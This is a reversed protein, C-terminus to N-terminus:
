GVHLSLLPHAKLHFCEISPWDRWAIRIIFNGGYLDGRPVGDCARHVKGLEVWNTIKATIPDSGTDIGGFERGVEGARRERNLDGLPAQDPLLSDPNGSLYPGGARSARDAQQSVSEGVPSIEVEPDFVLMGSDDVARM